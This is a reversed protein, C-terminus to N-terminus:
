RVPWTLGRGQCPADASRCPRTAGRGGPPHDARRPGLGIAEVSRRGDAGAASGGRRPRARLVGVALHDL